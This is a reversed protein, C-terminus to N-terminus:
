QRIIQMFEEPTEILRLLMRRVEQTQLPQYKVIAGAHFYQHFMKRSRRWMPGYRMLTFAWTWKM